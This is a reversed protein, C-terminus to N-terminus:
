RDLFEKDTVAKRQRIFDKLKRVSGEFDKGSEAKYAEYRKDDMAASARLKEAQRDIIGDTLEILFPEFAEAYRDKVLEKFEGKKLLESFIHDEFRNGFLLQTIDGPSNIEENELNTNGYAIDYDWVPGAHLKDNGRDKYYFASYKVSDYNKSIEDVLYKDALSM